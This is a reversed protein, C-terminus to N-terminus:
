HKLRELEKLRNNLDERISKIMIEKEELEKRLLDETKDDDLVGNAELEETMELYHELKKTMEELTKQKQKEQELLTKINPMTLNDLKCQAMQIEDDLNKNDDVLVDLRDKLTEVKSKLEIINSMTQKVKNEEILTITIPFYRKLFSLYILTRPPHKSFASKSNVWEEALVTISGHVDDLRTETSFYVHQILFAASGKTLKFALSIENAVQDRVRDKEQSTNLGKLYDFPIDFLTLQWHRVRKNSPIMLTLTPKICIDNVQIGKHQLISFTQQHLQTLQNPPIMLEVLFPTLFQISVTAHAPLSSQICATILQKPKILHSFLPCYSFDFLLSQSTSAYHWVSTQVTRTEQEKSFLDNKSPSSPFLYKDFLYEALLASIQIFEEM